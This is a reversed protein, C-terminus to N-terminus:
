PTWPSTAPEPSPRHRGDTGRGDIILCTGTATAVLRGAGDTIEARAFAVRRGPKTVLGTAVIPGSTTSLPRLYGIQLDISTYGVGPDLTTHVACGVVTDALACVVGGHVMGIPNYVSEDPEYEFAVRGLEIDRIRMGFLAAIPPPPLDGDRIARLFDIGSMSPAAAATIAPDRWTVTKSRPRGWDHSRGAATPQEIRTM